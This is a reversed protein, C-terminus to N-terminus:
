KKAGKVGEIFRRGVMSVGWLVSCSRVTSCSTAQAGDRWGVPNCGIGSVDDAANVKAGAGVLVKALAASHESENYAADMLPTKEWQAILRPATLSLYALCTEGHERCGEWCSTHRLLSSVLRLGGNM